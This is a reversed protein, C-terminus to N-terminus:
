DQRQSEGHEALGVSRDIVPAPGLPTRVAFQRDLGARRGLVEIPSDPCGRLRADLSLPGPAHAKRGWRFGAIRNLDPNHDRCDSSRDSPYISNGSKVPRHIRRETRKVVSIYGCLCAAHRCPLHASIFGDRGEEVGLRSLEGRVLINETLRVRRRPERDDERLCGDLRLAIRRLHAM